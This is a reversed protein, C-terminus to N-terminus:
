SLVLRGGDMRYAVGTRDFIAALAAAPDEVGEDLMRGIAAAPEPSGAFRTMAALWEGRSLVGDAGEDRRFDSLVTFFDGGDQRRRASELALSWAAGCAYYARNESREGAGAVPKGKALEVCDDVERQLESADDYTQDIAKIARIAMLDAGGETIWAERAFEYAMGNSGLWFHAAEHGIFWHARDLTEKDPDLHGEGEFTMAILGPLVSGGMSSLRRTPGAWSVMLTPAGDVNPGMREAYHSMVRPTFQELKANLWAPLGPDIVTTVGEGIRVDAQGFLVYTQADSATPADVRRGKFLVPGARDRWTVRSAEGPIDVGNLDMPLERAADVSAMPIMDFHDTYLAVAGDTFILAPDYDAILDGNRIQMAIRLRRPVNSGDAMRLVDYRGQRDLIVGPTEVSWWSPRWPQGEVRLLASRRFAWVPADRDMVVDATWRNGDRVVEVTPASSAAAEPAKGASACGVVGAALAAALLIRRM